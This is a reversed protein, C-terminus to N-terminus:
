AYARSRVSDGRKETLGVSQAEAPEPESLPPQRPSDYALLYFLLCYSFLLTMHPEKNVITLMCVSFWVRAYISINKLRMPGWVWAISYIIGPIGLAALFFGSTSTQARVMLDMSSLFGESAGGIGMGVIPSQGFLDLDVLLANWRTESFFGGDDIKGFVAPQYAALFSVVKDTYLYALMGGVLSLVFAIGVGRRRRFFAVFGVFVLLLYGATSQTLLLALIYLSLRLRSPQREVLSLEVLCAIALFSAFLGPEWFVGLARPLLEGEFEILFFIYGNLYTVGNRNEILTLPLQLGGYVIAVTAVSGVVAIWDMAFIFGAVFAQRSIALTLLLACTIIALLGFASKLPSGGKDFIASVLIGVVLLLWVWLRPDGLRMGFRGRSLLLVLLVGSLGLALPVAFTFQTTTSLAYGSLLLVGLGVSSGGIIRPINIRNKIHNKDNGVRTRKIM